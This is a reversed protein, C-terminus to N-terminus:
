HGKPESTRLLAQQLITRVDSGPCWGPQVLRPMVHQEGVPERHLRDARARARARLDPRRFFMLTAMGAM